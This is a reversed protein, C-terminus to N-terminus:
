SPVISNKRATKQLSFLVLGILITYLINLTLLSVHNSNGNSDSTFKGILPHIISPQNILMIFFVAYSLILIVYRGFFLSKTYVLCIYLSVFLSNIFLSYGFDKDLKLFFESYKFFELFLGLFGLFGLFVCVFFFAFILSELFYLFDKLLINLKINSRKLFKCFILIFVFVICVIAGIGFEFRFNNFIEVSFDINFKNFINCCKSLITEADKSKDHPQIFILFLPYLAILLILNNFVRLFDTHHDCLKRYFRLLLFDVLQFYNSNNQKIDEDTKVNKLKNWSQKLEIEKCYLEYKHFNSADLSNNDKILANKFVRFSDRFDNAFKDLSKEDQEENKNFEEYEENIQTKFDDFNFNLKANVANLNGKFIVQSFNPAKKFTVGYFSAMKEFECAYFITYNYFISNDFYANELFLSEDFVLRYKLEVNLMYIKGEYKCKDFFVNSEFIAGSFGVGSKFIVKSFCNNEVNDYLSSTLFKAGSFNIENFVSNRFIVGSEFRASSFNVIDESEIDEFLIRGQEDKKQTALFETNSFDSTKKFKVSSFHILSEFKANCFRAKNKFIVYSFSATSDFM